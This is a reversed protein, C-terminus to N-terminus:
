KQSLLRNSTPPKPRGFLKFAPDDPKTDPHIELNGEWWAAASTSPDAIAPDSLSGAQQKKWNTAVGSVVFTPIMAMLASIKPPPDDPIQSSRSKLVFSNARMRGGRLNGFTRLHDRVKDVAPSWDAQTTPLVDDKPLLRMFKFLAEFPASPLLRILAGLPISVVGLALSIGWERGGVRTVQFAAGGVFVIVTQIAMELLTIGMFYYNRSIGEFINLKNDLRRCNVSNFIQAFVFANFVMTKVTLENNRDMRANGTHKQLGLIRFGLFHFLLIITVQYVSQLLIQKYM